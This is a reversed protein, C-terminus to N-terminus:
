ATGSSVNQGQASGQQEELGNIILDLCQLPETCCVILESECTQQCRQKDNSVQRSPATVVRENANETFENIQVHM